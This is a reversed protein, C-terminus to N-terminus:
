VSVGKQWVPLRPFFTGLGDQCARVGGPLHPFFHELGDQCAKLGGREPLAWPILVILFLTKGLTSSHCYLIIITTIVSRFLFSMILWEVCLEIARDHIKLTFWVLGISTPPGPTIEHIDWRPCLFIDDWISGSTRGHLFEDLAIRSAPICKHKFFITEFLDWIGGKPFNM